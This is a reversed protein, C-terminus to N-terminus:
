QFSSLNPNREIVRAVIAAPDSPTVELAAAAKAPWAGASGVFAALMAAVVRPMWRRHRSRPASEPDLPLAFVRDLGYLALADRLAPTLAEVAIAGGVERLRRLGGVLTAVLEPPLSEGDLAVMLRPAPVKAELLDGILTEFDARANQDDVALTLHTPENMARMIRTLVQM